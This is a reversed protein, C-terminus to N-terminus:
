VYNIWNKQGYYINDPTGLDLVEGEIDYAHIKFGTSRIAWQAIADRFGPPMDADEIHCIRYEDCMELYQNIDITTAAASTLGRSGSRDGHPEEDRGYCWLLRNTEDEVVLRGIDTTRDTIYSTVGVTIDSGQRAHQGNMNALSAWPLLMDGPLIMGQGKLRLTDIAHNVAGDTGLPTREVSFDYNTDGSLIWGESNIFRMIQERHRGVCFVFRRFGVRQLGQLVFELIPQGNDLEILHKPILDRTVSKARTAEGGIPMIVITTAVSSDEIAVRRLEEPSQLTLDIV